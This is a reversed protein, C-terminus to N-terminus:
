EWLTLQRANHLELSAPEELGDVVRRTPTVFQQAVLERNLMPVGKDPWTFWYAYDGVYLYRNRLRRVGADFFGEPSTWEELRGVAKVAVVVRWFDAESVSDKDWGRVNYAHPAVAEVTRANQWHMREIIELVEPSVQDGHDPFSGEDM